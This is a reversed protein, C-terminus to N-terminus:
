SMCMLLNKGHQFVEAGCEAQAQERKRCQTFFHKIKRLKFVRGFSGFPLLACPILALVSAIPPQQIVAGYDDREGCGAVHGDAAIRSLAALADKILLEGFFLQPQIEWEGIDAADKFRVIQRENVKFARQGVGFACGLVGIGKGRRGFVNLNQGRGAHFGNRQFIIVDHIVAFGAIPIGALGKRVRANNVATVEARRGIRRIRANFDAHEGVLGEVAIIFIDVGGDFAIDLRKAIRSAADNDNGIMPALFLVVDGILTLNRESACGDVRARIQDDPM